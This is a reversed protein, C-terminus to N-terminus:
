LYLRGRDSDRYLDEKQYKSKEEKNKNQLTNSRPIDFRVSDEERYTDDSYFM